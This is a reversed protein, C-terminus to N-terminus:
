SALFSNAYLSFLEETGWASAAGAGYGNDRTCQLTDHLVSYALRPLVPPLYLFWATKNDTASENDLTNSYVIGGKGKGGVLDGDFPHFCLLDWM